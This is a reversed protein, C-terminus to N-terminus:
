WCVVLIHKRRGGMSLEVAMGEDQGEDDECVYTEQSDTDMMFVGDSGDLSTQRHHRNGNHTTITLTDQQTMSQITKLVPTVNELLKIETQSYLM